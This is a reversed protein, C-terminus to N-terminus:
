IQKKREAYIGLVIFAGIVVLVFYFSNLTALQTKILGTLLVTVAGYGFTSILIFILTRVIFHYRRIQNKVVRNIDGGAIVLLSAVLALSIQQNYPKLQHGLDSFLSIMWDM